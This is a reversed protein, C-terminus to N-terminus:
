HITGTWDGVLPTANAAGFSVTYDANGSSNANRLFDVGFTPLYVGVSDGPTADWNGAIPMAGLGTPGFGFTLDAGGGANSNKLFFFGSAAGYIGVTDTGNGDWDGIVPVFGAGPGFSFVLDAPGPTNANRLFFFGTTNDYIGITETGNGDWDGVVPTFNPGGPGFSFVLDANGPTNSNKLFFFGTSPDYLGVTDDGDGDWDGVLQRFTGGPGFNVTTDANGATNSNRLFFTGTAQVGSGVSHVIPVVTGALTGRERFANNILGSTAGNNLMMDATLFASACEVQTPSLDYLFQAQLMVDLGADTGAQNNYDFVPHSWVQGASHVASPRNAWLTSVNLIRLNPHPTGNPNYSTADWEGVTVDYGPNSGIKKSMIGALVDGTGAGVGESTQNQSTGPRQNWLMAHGFEHWVIEQDEADDVGGQGFCLHGTGNGSRNDGSFHSNDTTDSFHPPKNAYYQLSYNMVPNANAVTYGLSQFVDQAFNIAWYGNEQNFTAAAPTTTRRLDSFDLNARTVRGGVQDSPVQAYTGVLATNGGEDLYPLTVDIYATEPFPSTTDRLADNALTVTPSPRFVKGTGTAYCDRSLPEDIVEGTAADVIVEFVGQHRVDVLTMWALRGGDATPWIGLEPAAVHTTDLSARTTGIAAAATDLAQETSITPVISKSSVPVYTNNIAWVRGNRDMHVAVEGTFVPLGQYKQQYYYHIPKTAGDFQRALTLDNTDIGFVHANQQLFAMARDGMKNAAPAEGLDGFVLRPSGTMASFRAFVDSDGFMPARDAARKSAVQNKLGEWQDAFAPGPVDQKLDVSRTTSSAARKGNALPARKATAQPAAFAFLALAATSLALVSRVRTRSSLHKM